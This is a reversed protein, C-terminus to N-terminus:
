KTPSTGGSYFVSPNVNMEVREMVALVNSTNFTQHIVLGKTGKMVNHSAVMVFPFRRGNNIHDPNNAGNQTDDESVAIVTNDKYASTSNMIDQVILNMSADNWQICTAQASGCNGGPHDDFLEVFSYTPLGYDAVYSIFSYAVDQDLFPSPGTGCAYQCEWLMQPIGTTPNVTPPMDPSGSTTNKWWGNTCGTVHEVAQTNGPLSGPIGTTSALSCGGYNSLEWIIDGFSAFPLTTKSQPVNSGLFRDFISGGTADYSQSKSDSAFACSGAKVSSSNYVGWETTSGTGETGGSACSDTSGWTNASFLYAHAQASYPDVSSYMNDFISYAKGWQHLYPVDTWSNAGPSNAGGNCSANITTACDGLYDDFVHNERVIYVFHTLNSPFAPLAGAAVQSPTYVQIPVTSPAGVTSSAGTSVPMAGGLESAVMITAILVGIAGWQRVTFSM